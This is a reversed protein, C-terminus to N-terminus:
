RINDYLKQKQTSSKILGATMWPSLLTKTKIKIETIPFIENYVESFKTLFVNYSVNPYVNPDKLSIVDNCDIESLQTKFININTTNIIRKHFTTEKSYLNINIKNNAFYIPFHDTVDTTIIGTKLSTNYFTNTFIHDIATATSKAIRTPKNILSIMGNRFM